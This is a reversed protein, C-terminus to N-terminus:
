IQFVLSVNQIAIHGCYKMVKKELTLAENLLVGMHPM